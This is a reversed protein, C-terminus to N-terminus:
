GEATTLAAIRRELQKIKAALLGIFEEYRLMYIDNGDADQDKVFGGFEQTEIAAASMAEEVEQAVFGVHYRDSTGSNLKFRRPVLADFMTLYKEPLEKISNKYNRDSTSIVSNTSFIQGWMADANGLTIANSDPCFTSSYFRYVNGGSIIGCGGSAVYMSYDVGGCRLSAGSDTAAVEGNGCSMHIGAGGDLLSSAYGLTGGAENSEDAKYVTLTGALHLASAKISGTEISDGNIQTTGGKGMFSFGEVTQKFESFEEQNTVLLSIEENTKTIQSYVRAFKRDTQRQSPSKYQYEHEQTSEGPAAIESLHGPGFNVARYALISQGGDVAIEDGLEATPTLVAGISRFGKYTKGRVSSLINDAMAQTGYKCDVELMYGSDDGSIIETEDDVLLSVGTIPGIEDYWEHSSVRRGIDHTNNM